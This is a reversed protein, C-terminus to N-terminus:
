RIHTKKTRRQADGRQSAWFVCRPEVFGGTGGCGRQPGRGRKARGTLAGAAHAARQLAGGEAHSGTSGRAVGRGCPM